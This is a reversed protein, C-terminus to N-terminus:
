QEMLRDFRPNGRLVKLDPEETIYINYTADRDMMEELAALVAEEDGLEQWILAACLLTEPDRGSDLLATDIMAVAEADRDIRVYYLALLGRTIWDRSNIALRAEALRAATAYTERVIEAGTEMWRYSEALRGWARHDDPALEIAKKQMEASEFFQGNYYYLFGRNTYGTRTPKLELARDWAAGAADYQQITYYATGLNNWAAANEPTLEVVKMAQQVVREYHGPQDDFERYFTFLADHVLWNDPQLSEAQLLAAEAERIQGQLGLAQGLERIAEVNRPEIELAKRSEQEARGYDGFNRYLAGLAVRVEAREPDLILAQQCASEAESFHWAESNQLYLSLHTECLGAYAAAFNADLSIATQFQVLAEEYAVVTRQDLGQRGKLYAEYAALDATPVAALRLEDKPSLEASTATAIARAIESQIAFLNETSLERDFTQAWAHQDSDAKILQANVRIHAGARQVGGELVYDVHLERGIEPISKDSDRYRMVSTRSVVNFSDIRALMTLLDDHIGDVFYADDAQSSRNAFPLVALSNHGAGSRTIGAEPGGTMPSGTWVFKDLAFLLVAASLMAIVVPNLFRKFDDDRQYNEPLDENRVLGSTTLEFFWALILAVPFGTALLIIFTRFIWGPADFADLLVDAIQLLLWSVVGYTVAARLINRKRIESILKV